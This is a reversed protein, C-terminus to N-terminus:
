DEIVELDDQPVSILESVLRRMIQAQKPSPRWSPRKSHRAISQAFGRTWSDGDRMARRIVRPWHLTLIEDLEIATM